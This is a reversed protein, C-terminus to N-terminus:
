LPFQTLGPSHALNSADAKNSFFGLHKVDLVDAKLHVRFGLARPTAGKELKALSYALTKVALTLPPM